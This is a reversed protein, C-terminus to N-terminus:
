LRPPSDSTIVHVVGGTRGAIVEADPWARAAIKRATAESWAQHTSSLVWDLRGDPLAHCSVGVGLRTDRRAHASDALIAGALQDLEHLHAPALLERRRRTVGLYVGWTAIAVAAALTPWSPWTIACVLAVAGSCWQAESLGLASPRVPDGRVLELAFRAAAYGTAYVVTAAGATTSVSIAAVVLALSIAAEVLQVPFLPRHACRRWLGAAVHADGYTVGRRAPRGHCCAVHFCGLRGFVLFVGIGIVAIDLLRWPSAGIAIAGVLVAATAGTTVQYFM